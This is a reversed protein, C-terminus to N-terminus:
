KEPPDPIITMLQDPTVSFYKCLKEIYEAKVYGPKNAIRSLTSIGIGTEKCIEAYSIRKGEVAGKKVILEKLNVIIMCEGM